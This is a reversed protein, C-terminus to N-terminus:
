WRNGNSWCRCQQVVPDVPRVPVLRIPVQPVLRVLRVPVPTIPVLQVRVVPPVQAPRIAVRLVRVSNRRYEHGYRWDRRQGCDAFRSRQVQTALLVPPVMAVQVPPAMPLVVQASGGGATNSPNTSRFHGPM